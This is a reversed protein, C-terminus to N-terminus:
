QKEYYDRLIQEMNTWNEASRNYLIEISEYNETPEGQLDVDFDIWEYPYQDSPYVRCYHWEDDGNYLYHAALIKNEKDFRLEEYMVYSAFMYTATNESLTQIPQRLYTCIYSNLGDILEPRGDGTLDYLGFRDSYSYDVDNQLLDAYAAAMASIEEDSPMEFEPEPTATPEPTVEPTPQPTPKVTPMPTQVIEQSEQVELEEATAVINKYDSIAENMAHGAGGIAACIAVGIAIKTAITGAVNTAVTTGAMASAGDKVAEMTAAKAVEGTAAAKASTMSLVSTIIAAPVECAAAEEGFAFFLVAGISASYLKIGQKKELELIGAKIKERGRHLYTKVSNEPIGEAEAIEKISLQNYYFSVITQRQNLPLDDIIEMLMRQLEKNEMADEPLMDVDDESMEALYDEEMEGGSTIPPNKKFYAAIKHHAISAIWGYFAEPNQINKLCKFAELYTEQTVDEAIDEDRVSKIISYYTYKRTKDYIEAFVDNNGEQFKKVLEAVEKNQYKM